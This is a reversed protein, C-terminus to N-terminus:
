VGPARWLSPLLGNDSIKLVSPYIERWRAYVDNYVKHDTQNPEVTREWHVVRETAEHWNKVEGLAIMACVAAGLSTSEKVVPIHLPVGLVSSIIQPWLQGKSSGGVLIAERPAEGILETLIEIHGRTVYAASEEVARICAAKGTKEPALVDFGMLSPSAHVWRKCNMVDAFIPMVGNSGAPIDKALEEMLSYADKGTERAIRKEEQCFGDRFWRMVFGHYFGIGETMWQGPVVHCLTRLRYQPDYHAKDDVVTTQWFTGACITYMHPKVAGAGVLALQTDAGGTVVMTGERLGTEAAAKATIKGVPTGCEFVPTYIGRPLDAIEVIKESWKRTTLDFMGSSSGISPDTVLEGSLEFLVWDSLMNMHAIQEYIEPKKKKIWWFRGPSIINLWDGGINYIPEALNLRLMEVVEESARADVNPCAWIVKKEKNYLVMGERMATSTAAVVKDNSIGSKALVENSCEKLLKWAEDTDFDQSGPYKPDSKPLWERQAVAVQKGDLDFLICRGSGTGVDFNMIFRDQRSMAGGM